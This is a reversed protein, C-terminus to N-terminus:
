KSTEPPLTVDINIPLDPQKVNPQKANPDFPPTDDGQSRHIEDALKITSKDPFRVDLTQFEWRGDFLRSVSDIEAQAKSGQVAFRLGLTDGDSRGSPFGRVASIPEGLREVVQANARIEALAAKYQGHFYYRWVERSLIAGVVIIALLLLGIGSLIKHRAFWTKQRKAAPTPATQVTPM